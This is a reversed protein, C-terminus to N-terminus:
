PTIPRPRDDPIARVANGHQDFEIGALKQRPTNLQPSEFYTVARRPSEKQERTMATYGDQRRYTLNVGRLRLADPPPLCRSQVVWRYNLKQTVAYGIIDDLCDAPRKMGDPLPLNSHEAKTVWAYSIGGFIGGGDLLTHRQRDARVFRTYSFFVWLPTAGPTTFKAEAVCGKQSACDYRYDLQLAKPDIGRQLVEQHIDHIASAIEDFIEHGVRDAVAPSSLPPKGYPTQLDWAFRERGTLTDNELVHPDDRRVAEILKHALEKGGAHMDNWDVYEPLAKEADPYLLWHVESRFFNDYARLVIPAMTRGECASALMRLAEARTDTARLCISHTSGILTHLNMAGILESWPEIEPWHKESTKSLLIDVDEREGLTALLNCYCLFSSKRYDPFEKNAWKRVTAKHRKLLSHRYFPSHTGHPAFTVAIEYTHRLQWAPFAIFLLPYLVAGILLLKLVLRRKKPACPETAM